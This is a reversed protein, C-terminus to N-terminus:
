VGFEYGFLEIDQAYKDAVIRKTKNTYYETYHKHNSKFLHPLPQNLHYRDSLITYTENLEEYKGIHDYCNLPYFNVYGEIHFFINPDHPFLKKLEKKHNLNLIFQEFTVHKLIKRRKKINIKWFFLSVLRDWPNRVITFKYYNKFEKNDIFPLTELHNKAYIGQNGFLSRISTGGTKPIHTFILQHSHSVM